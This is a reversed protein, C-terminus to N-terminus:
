TSLIQSVTGSEDAVLNHMDANDPGKPNKLGHEKGMTNIHSKTNLFKEDSCDAVQHFHVGHKGPSIGEVNVYVLVGAEAQTLTVSGIESRDNTIVPFTRSEADEAVSFSPMVSMAAEAEEHHAAQLSSSLVLATIPAGVIKFTKACSASISKM